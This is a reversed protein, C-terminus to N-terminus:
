FHKTNYKKNLSETYKRYKQDMMEILKFPFMIGEAFIYVGGMLIIYFSSLLVAGCFAIVPSILVLILVDGGTLEREESKQIESMIKHNKIIKFFNNKHAV